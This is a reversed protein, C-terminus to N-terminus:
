TCHPPCCIHILTFRCPFASDTGMDSGGVGVGGATVPGGMGSAASTRTCGPLTGPPLLKKLLKSNAFSAVSPHASQIFCSCQTSGPHALPNAFASPYLMHTNIIYLTGFIYTNIVIVINIVLVSRALTRVRCSLQSNPSSKGAVVVQINQIFVVKHLLSSQTAINSRHQVVNSSSDFQRCEGYKCLVLITHNM